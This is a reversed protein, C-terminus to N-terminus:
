IGKIPKIAKLKLPPLKLKSEGPFKTKILKALQIKKVENRTDLRNKRKEIRGTDKLRVRQGKVKKFKRFKLPNTMPARRKSWIQGKKAPIKKIRFQANLSQDSAYRAFNRSVSESRFPKTHSVWKKSKASKKFQPLFGPVTLKLLKLKKRLGKLTPYTDYTSPIPLFPKKSIPRKKYRGDYPTDVRRSPQGLSPYTGPAGSPRPSTPPRSPKPSTPLPLLSLSSYDSPPRSPSVPKSGDKLGKLISTIPSTIVGKSVVPKSYGPASFDIGTDKKLQKYLLDKDPKKDKLLKKLEKSTTAIESGFITVPKKDIITKAIVKGRKIIEGPALIIEPEKSLFGLPKFKGSPTLQFKELLEAEKKTLPKGSLLKRRIKELYAPFREIPVKEFLLAQAKTKKLAADGSLIDIISARKPEKEFLRSPRLRTKPDAFFARELPPSEPTPLPKDVKVERGLKQLPTEGAFLRDFNIEFLSRQASVADVAQGSLGVQEPISETPLSRSGIGEALKIDVTDGKDIASPVRVTPIDDILEVPTFRPSLRTFTTDAIGGVKALTGGGAFGTAVEGLIAGGAFGPESIITPGIQQAAAIAGPIAGPIGKATRIPHTIVAKGFQAAGVFPTAFGTGVVGLGEVVGVDEGRARKTFAIDRKRTLFSSARDLFGTPEEAAQVEFFVGRERERLSQTSLTAAEMAAEEAKEAAKEAEMAAKEAADRKVQQEPSVGGRSRRGTSPDIGGGFAKPKKRLYAKGAERMRKVADSVM